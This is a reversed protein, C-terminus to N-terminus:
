EAPAPFVRTLKGNTAASFLANARPDIILLDEGRWAIGVPNDLPEGSIWKEAKGDRTVNWITKAYGDSVVATGEPRLLVQHPYQFPADKVIAEVTGDPAVRQLQPANAALVWVHDEGDVVLGRPGGVVLFEQPEGGEKPVKWVRHLDTDSVYLKGQSDTALKMPILVLGFNDPTFQVDETLRTGRLAPAPATLQTLAGDPAVAFIERAASDGALLEGEPTVHLCRIANLPTRFKKSAQVFVETKGDKLKWIGPLNRDAIYITDDKGVVVDIPYQWDAAALPILTSTSAFAFVLPILLPKMLPCAQLLAYM